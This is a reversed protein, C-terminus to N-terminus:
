FTVVGKVSKTIKWSLEQQVNISELFDLTDYAPVYILEFYNKGINSSTWTLIDPPLTVNEDSFTLTFVGSRDISSM